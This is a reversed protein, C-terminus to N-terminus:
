KIGVEIKRWRAGAENSVHETWSKYWPLSTFPRALAHRLPGLGWLGRQLHEQVGWFDQVARLRESSWESDKAIVANLRLLEIKFRWQSLRWPRDNTNEWLQKFAKGAKDADVEFPRGWLKLWDAWQQAAREDANFYRKAYAHLIQDGSKYKGSALGALLAKNIDDFVGESYAMVGTCGHTKLAAVTKELRDSAIVPGLHGYIDRPHAQEAYGIHVFAHRECGRPLPVNSVDTKGYPIHLAISRAWGPAQRDAWDAFQRHEGESWWWGVLHMKIGPHHREAIAHIERTLQAFTIIWPQCKDCACGGYDYPCSCLGSLRVDSKALDAFLNEYNHLIIKRAEPKSPCILQGFIRKAKVAVLEPRCQDLYVHNPTIILDCKLGLSQATRFNIKKRDWLAGALNYHPDVFPDACDITNFWDGYRNFGWHVAETLYDRMETEGMVEYSNGFHGPAYLTRATFTVPSEDGRKETANCVTSALSM